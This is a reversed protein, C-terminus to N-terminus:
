AHFQQYDASGDNTSTRLIGDLQAASPGFGYFRQYSSVVDARLDYPAQNPFAVMHLWRWMLPSEHSPPDWRYGGLPVKYVRRDKVAALGRWVASDYLDKPLAADFNGLLVIDPDWALVQEPDVGVMGKGSAGGPGSAPNQGGVMAIYGDNYTGTGAVKLGGVFRNFYVIKPAPTPSAKGVATLQQYAAQTAANLQDGREKKGLAAAFLSIWTAIDDQTGYKLGVVKLGANELPAIIGSGQDGWQVVLDPQLALIAEVNPTFTDDAVDHRVGLAAPFITALIGDRVAVWSANQMGVLHSAGQDVAILISAAPQPITVIRRAPKTLTVVTGRQDTLSVPGGADSPGSAPGGATGAGSGSGGDAACGALLTAGAAMAGGLVARRSLDGAGPSRSAPM